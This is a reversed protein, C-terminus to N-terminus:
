PQHSWVLKDNGNVPGPRGGAVGVVVIDGRGVVIGDDEMVIVTGRLRLRHRTIVVEDIGIGIGITGSMVVVHVGDRRVTVLDTVIVNVIVPVAADV